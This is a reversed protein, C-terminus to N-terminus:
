PAHALTVLGYVLAYEIPSALKESTMYVTMVLQGSANFSYTSKRKAHEFVFFQIIQDRELEYHLKSDRGNPGVLERESGDMPAVASYEGMVISVKDGVRSIEIRQPLEQHNALRNAAIKRGLWGLSTVAADISKQITAHDKEPDGVYRYEGELVEVISVAIPPQDISQASTLAAAALWGALSLGFARKM